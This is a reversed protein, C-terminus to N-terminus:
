QHAHVVGTRVFNGICSNDHQNQKVDVELLDNVTNYTTRRGNWHHSIRDLVVRVTGQLPVAPESTKRNQILRIPGYIHMHALEYIHIYTYMDHQYIIHICIYVYMYTYIHICIM